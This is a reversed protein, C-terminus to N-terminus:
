LSVESNTESVMIEGNDHINGSYNVWGERMGSVMGAM